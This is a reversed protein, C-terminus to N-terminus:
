VLYMLLNEDSIETSGYVNGSTSSCFFFCKQPIGAHEDATEDDSAFYNCIKNKQM